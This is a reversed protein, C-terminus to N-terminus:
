APMALEPALVFPGSAARLFRSPARDIKGATVSRPAMAAGDVPCPPGDPATEGAPKFYDLAGGCLPCVYLVRVPSNEPNTM